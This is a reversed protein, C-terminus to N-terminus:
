AGPKVIRFRLELFAGKEFNGLAECTEVAGDAVYGLRNASDTGIARELAAKARDYIASKSWNMDQAFKTQQIYCFESPTLSFLASTMSGESLPELIPDPPTSTSASDKLSQAVERAEAVMTKLLDIQEDPSKGELDSFTEQSVNPAPTTRRGMGQVIDCNLTQRVDPM